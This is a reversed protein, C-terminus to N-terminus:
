ALFRHGADGLNKTTAIGWEDRGARGRTKPVVPEDKQFLLDFENETDSENKRM